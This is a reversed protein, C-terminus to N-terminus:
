ASAERGRVRERVYRLFAEASRSRELHANGNNDFGCVEARELRSSEFAFKGLTMGRPTWDGRETLDLFLLVREGRRFKAAGPVLLGLDGVVGGPSVVEITRGVSQGRLREVVEVRTVTEIGRGPEQRSFAEGAVGVVIGASQQILEEDSPVVFVAAEASIALLILVSLRISKM